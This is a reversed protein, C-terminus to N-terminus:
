FVYKNWTSGAFSNLFKYKALRQSLKVNAGYELENEFEKQNDPRALTKDNLFTADNVSLSETSLKDQDEERLLLDSNFVAEELLNVMM